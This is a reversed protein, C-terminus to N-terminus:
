LGTILHFKARIGPHEVRSCLPVIDIGLRTLFTQQMCSYINIIIIMMMMMMMMMM